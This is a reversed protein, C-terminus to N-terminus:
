HSKGKIEKVRTLKAKRAVDEGFTEALGRRIDEDTTRAPMGLPDDAAPIKGDKVGSREHKMADNTRGSL